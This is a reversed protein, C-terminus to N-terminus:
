GGPAEFTINWAGKRVVTNNNNSIQVYMLVYSANGKPTVTYNRTWINNTIKTENIDVKEQWVSGFEPKFVTIVSNNAVPNIIKLIIPLKGTKNLEESRIILSIQNPTTDSVNTVEQVQTLNDQSINSGPIETQPQLEKNICGGMISVLIMMGLIKWPRSISALWGESIARNGM